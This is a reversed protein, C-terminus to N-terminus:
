PVPVIDLTEILIGALLFQFLFLVISNHLLIEFAKCVINLHHCIEKCNPHKEREERRENRECRQLRPCPQVQDCPKGCAKPQNLDLVGRSGQVEPQSQDKM